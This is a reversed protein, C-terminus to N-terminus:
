LKTRFLHRPCRALNRAGPKRWQNNARRRPEQSGARAIGQRFFEQANVMGRHRHLFEVTFKNSGVRVRKIINLADQRRHKGSERFVRMALETMSCHTVGEVLIKNLLVAPEDIAHAWLAATPVSRGCGRYHFLTRRDMDLTKELTM